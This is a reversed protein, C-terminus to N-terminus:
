QFYLKSPIIGVFLTDIIKYTPKDIQFILGKQLYDIADTVYVDNTTPHVGLGYFLQNNAMIMSTSSLETANIPFSYIHNQLYYLTKKDASITLRCPTATRNIFPFSQLVTETIPDIQYLTPIACNPCVGDSALVWMKENADLVFECMDIRLPLENIVEDTATDIVLITGEKMNAVFVKEGFLLMHETWCFSNQCPVIISDIIEYSVLDVIDISNSQFNTVYGKNNTIPLLYRPSSFGEITTVSEFTATTVVEIKQSNNVIIFTKDGLQTLSQAVDGLPRENVRQFINNTVENNTPSIHSISATGYNFTGENVVLIGTDFDNRELPTLTNDECGVIGIVLMCLCLICSISQRM